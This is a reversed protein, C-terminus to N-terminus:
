GKRNKNYIITRNEMEYFDTEIVIQKSLVKLIEDGEETHTPIVKPIVQMNPDKSACRNKQFLVRIKEHDNGIRAGTLIIDPQKM